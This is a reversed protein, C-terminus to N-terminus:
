PRTGDVTELMAQLGTDPLPNLLMGAVAPVLDSVVLEAGAEIGHGIVSIGDQSYLVDVPQIQLRRDAGVLYVQGDRVATRPVVLRQAQPRGQLLVRVFMGKSLPPREGPRVQELPKDVAVVVGITRTAIDVGDSFRVFYADWSATHTGMDLTVVPTFGTFEPLDTSLRDLEPIQESRGIFLKRLSAMGIRAVIEVRDVLDGQFLAQGKSIFQHAEMALGAVRLNFPAAVATNALDREAQARRAELVRRQTPVLALTNKLNQVAARTSLLGREAEDVNSQSVSGKAALKRLRELERAAITENRQEITLSAQTNEAKVELEALEAQAQALSLEYDVPDIRFLPTGATIIEGDRLKPHMEIVRGSVQAVATWVRAPQVTGYGEAVPVLDRIPVKVSRVARAPEGETSLSPPPRGGAMVALVVVGALVPPLVWLVQRRNKSQENM